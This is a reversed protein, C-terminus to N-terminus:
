VSKLKSICVTKTSAPNGHSYRQLEAAPPVYVAQSTSAVPAADSPTDTGNKKKKSARKKKKNKLLDLESSPGPQGSSSPLAAAANDDQQSM